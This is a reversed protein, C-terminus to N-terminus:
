DLGQNVLLSTCVGASTDITAKLNPHQPIDGAFHHDFYEISCGQELLRVVDVRNKDLSIDLVTLCDGKGAEVGALLSVDRKLGTLLDSEVPNALRLQHLACIGDADGNFIDFYKM